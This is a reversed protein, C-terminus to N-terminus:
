TRTLARRWRRFAATRGDKQFEGLRRAVQLLVAQVVDPADDKSLGEKRCWRLILWSYRDVLEQWARTEFRIAALLLDSAISAATSGNEANLPM